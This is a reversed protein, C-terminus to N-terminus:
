TSRPTSSPLGAARCALDLLTRGDDDREDLIEPSQLARELGQIDGRCAAEGAESVGRNSM